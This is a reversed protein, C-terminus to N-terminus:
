TTKKRHFAAPLLNDYAPANQLTLLGITPDDDSYAITQNIIDDKVHSYGVYLNIWKYSTGLTINHTISPMLFPNGADYM